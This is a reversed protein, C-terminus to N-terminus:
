IHRAFEKHYKNRAEQAVLDALEFDKFYGFHFIKKNAKVRVAWKKAHKHWRVGKSGSTNDKRIKANQTNQEFSAPRLNEIRNDTKIGNIHDLIKPLYGKQHLFILRHLRYAKKNVVVSLYGGKTLSGVEEGIITKKAIKIQWFLKGNEYRFLQNLYDKTM